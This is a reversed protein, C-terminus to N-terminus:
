FDEIIWFCEWVAKSSSQLTQSTYSSEAFTNKPETTGQILGLNQLLLFESSQNIKILRQLCVVCFLLYEEKEGFFDIPKGLSIKVEKMNSSELCMCIYSVYLNLGIFCVM